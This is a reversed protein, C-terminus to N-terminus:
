FIVVFIADHLNSTAIGTTSDFAINLGLDERQKGTKGLIWADSQTEM